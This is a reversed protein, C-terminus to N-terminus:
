MTVLGSVFFNRGPELNIAGRITSLHNRYRQHFINNVGGRIVIAVKDILLPISVFDIDSIVYSATASEGSAIRQQSTSFSSAASVTGIHEYLATLTVSGHLPSIAPLNKHNSWDEGRVYSATVSLAYQKTLAHDGSVEWGYIRANTINQKIFVPNGEFIGSVDSVLNTLQQFFVDTRIASAETHWRIGANISGSQEPKLGPNGLHIRDGLTLYQFREELSPSRFATSVLFSLDIKPHISFHIGTNASWSENQARGSRWLIKQQAPAFNIVGGTIIYEPNFTEDNSIVIWDYRAGFSLVLNDPIVSWENQAFLGASRFRAHPVPREGTVTNNASNIIERKSLLTREWVDIGASLINSQALNIKSEIQASTTSHIANPTLTLTPTQIIEVNRVINQQSLRVQISSFVTSFNPLTYEAGFLERNMLKYKAVAAPSIPTGGSIGTNEAQSRQYSLHLHQHDYTKIGLSGNINFDTFQTQPITGDPTSTNGAHRYGSSFRASYRESSASISAHQSACNNVSSFGSNIEGSLQFADTFPSRKSLMQVVGGLAGTGYVAGGSSRITEVRELDHINFLSLAGGIDNATEIRTNDILTVINSRSMGRISISTEWAGDRVLSLGPKNKLIESLTSANQHVLEETLLVNQPFATTLSNSSTRSSYVILGESPFVKTQLLVILTEPFNHEFRIRREVDAYAIHHISITKGSISPLTFQFCGQEDSLIKEDTERILIVAHSVPLLTGADIVRGAIVIGQAQATALVATIIFFYVNLRQFIGCGTTPRLGSAAHDPPADAPFRSFSTHLGPV